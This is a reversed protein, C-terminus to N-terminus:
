AAIEGPATLQPFAGIDRLIGLAEQVYYNINLDEPLTDPLDMLPRAGETKPVIHGNSARIICGTEGIAYYWRVVKGLYNGNKVAGGRVTRISLFKRMDTENAITEEVPVGKTLWAIAAEITIIVEPNKKFREYAYEQSSWPSFFAGKTKTKRDPKVAIYNNVDRSFIADYETEETAFGTTEEWWKFIANMEERRAKPAKTVIGDTNASVVTFGSYELAEILMLLSLQGTLTVTALLDPSYLSSYKSGFKGFSGNVVIKLTEAEVKNKAKKAEIRRQVISRYVQLFDPGLHAPYLGLNLIISPYYSTVDRDVIVTDADARHAACTETSHLGGMGIQYTAAGITVTLDVTKGTAPDIPLEAYGGEGVVFEWGQITALVNQLAPTVFSIFEPTRYRFTPAVTEPPHPESFSIRKLEGCIVAEAIQADSKSRLDQGYRESMKQRLDIQDRLNWFCFATNTLDFKLCYLRVIAIQDDSLVTDPPFPLDQMGPCHLRGSYLKLSGELPCVEIIDIHDVNSLKKVKASKLVQWPKVEEVIIRDAAQKLEACTKGALALALIPLDFNNGNFTVIPFHELIWKVRSFDPQVDGDISNFPMDNGWYQSFSVEAYYIKGSVVSTFGVLFFNPFVEIDCILPERANCAAVLEETTFLDPRYSRAEELRPLYTPLLWVPEPPIAKPIPPKRPKPLNFWLGTEITAPFKELPACEVTETVEGAHVLVNGTPDIWLSLPQKTKQCKKVARVFAKAKPAFELETQIDETLVQEGNFATVKHSRIVFHQSLKKGGVAPLVHLLSELM